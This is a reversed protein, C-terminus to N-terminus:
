GERSMRQRLREVAEAHLQCVRPQSVGLVQAIERYTLGETYHLALLTQLRDPLSAVAEALARQTEADALRADPAARLDPLDLKVPLQPQALAALGEVDEPDLGVEEAVEHAAPERGLRQGLRGRAVAVREVQARLRRPLHDMRRLEDIMAGRIRHEAFTEFRVDRAPDFRHAADILGLAGASWLDEASVAHGSRAAIRRAIRDVLAGHRRLIDADTEGPPSAYRSRALPM